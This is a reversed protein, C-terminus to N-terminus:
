KREGQGQANGSDRKRRRRPRSGGRRAGGKRPPPGYDAPPWDALMQRDWNMAEILLSFLEHTWRYQPHRVVRNMGRKNFFRPLLLVVEKADHTLAKPLPLPDFLRRITLYVNKREEEPVGQFDEPNEVGLVELVKPLAMTALALRRSKWYGGESKRRDRIAMLQRMLLGAPEDWIRDVEPLFWKLFQNERFVALTKVTYPKDFIKLQEEYLRSGSALEISQGKERIVEALKHELSFEYQSVLKLARLIRVPDEALRAAPDGIARVVGEELDAMGGVWDLLHGQGLPDYFLANVTFDRRRADQERTGYQNDRWLVVGDDDERGQREEPTPERRFTSVEYCVRGYRVHVLRFRRGIIRARRGFVRKIEDPAASTVIDYDKPEINLLLDRVAGGVIYAEFDQERLRSVIDVVQNDVKIEFIM